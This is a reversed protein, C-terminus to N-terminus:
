CQTSITREWSLTVTLAPSRGLVVLVGTNAGEAGAAGLHVQPLGIALRKSEGGVGALRVLVEDALGVVAATGVGLLTVGARAVGVTAVQVGEAVSVSVEVAGALRDVGGLLEGNNGLEM